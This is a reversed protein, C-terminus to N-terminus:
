HWSLLFETRPPLYWKAYIMIIYGAGHVDVSIAKGIEVLSTRVQSRCQYPVEDVPTLHVIFLTRFPM